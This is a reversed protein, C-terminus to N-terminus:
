DVQPIIELDVLSLENKCKRDFKLQENHIIKM